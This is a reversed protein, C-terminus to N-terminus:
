IFSLDRHHEICLLEGVNLFVSAAWKRGIIVVGPHDWTSTSCPLRRCHMDSHLPSPSHPCPLQPVSVESAPFSNTFPPQREWKSAIQLTEQIKQQNTKTDDLLTIEYFEQIDTFLLCCSRMSSKFTQLCYVVHDWLVRSHRFVTFLTIEYFQQIDTFLCRACLLRVTGIFVKCM